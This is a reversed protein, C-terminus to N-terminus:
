KEVGAELRALENHVTDVHPGINPEVAKWHHGCFLLSNGSHMIVEVYAQAGCGDCRHTSDLRYKNPQPPQYTGELQGITAM